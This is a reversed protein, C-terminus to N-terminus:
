LKTTQSIGSFTVVRHLTLNLLLIFVGIYSYDRPNMCPAVGPLSKVHAQVDKPIRRVNQPINKVSMKM